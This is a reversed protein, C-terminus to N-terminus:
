RAGGALRKARDRDIVHDTFRTMPITLILFLIAAVVYSSYNFYTDAYIEAARVAEIAGIVSVLATDKQLSIFDNLLPPIVVRIAQPVLVYRLSQTRSLGLSRAAAEQSQSVAYLGARFVESVYASYTATLTIIGYVALSQTSIIKLNLAPFGFGVLLMVLIVPVGRMVDCYVIAVMRIPFLIATRQIRIIAILLGFFLILVEAILFMEINLAFAKGVSFIGAKPDGIFAQKMDHVNFFYHRVEAAGPALLFIASVVGLFVVTSITSVVVGRNGALMRSRRDYTGFSGPPPPEPVIWATTETGGGHM